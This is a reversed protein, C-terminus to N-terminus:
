PIPCTGVFMKLTHKSRQGLQRSVVTFLAAVHFTSQSAQERSSRLDLTRTKCWSLYDAPATSISRGCCPIMMEKTKGSHLGLVYVTLWCSALYFASALNPSRLSTRAQM